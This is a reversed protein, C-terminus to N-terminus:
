AKGPKKNLFVIVAILFFLIMLSGIQVFRWAYLSYKGEESNWVFCLQFVRDMTTGVKGDSADILSFRFDRSPINVGDLYRSIVGRPTIVIATAPHSYDVGNDQIKYRFGLSDMLPTISEVPGTWFQWDTPSVEASIITRRHNEGKVRAIEPTDTPSFSVSVVTYDRGPVLGHKVNAAMADRIGNFVLTCLKPCNYYGPVIILPRRKDKLLDKIQIKQGDEGIFVLNGPIKKRLKQTIGVDKQLDLRKKESPTIPIKEARLSGGGGM